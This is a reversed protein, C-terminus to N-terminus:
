LAFSAARPQNRRRMCQRSIILLSPFLFYVGSFSFFFPFPFLCRLILFFSPFLFYVGRLILFLVCPTSLNALMICALHVRPKSHVSMANEKEM